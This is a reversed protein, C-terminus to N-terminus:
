GFASNAFSNTTTFVNLQFSIGIMWCVGLIGSAYTSYKKTPM